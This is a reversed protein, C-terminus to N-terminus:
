TLDNFSDKTVDLYKNFYSICESIVLCIIYDFRYIFYKYYIDNYLQVFWIILDIFLINMIYIMSLLLFVKCYTIKNPGEYNKFKSVFVLSLLLFVRYLSIFVLSLLLYVKDYINKNPNDSNLIKIFFWILYLNFHLNEDFLLIKIM